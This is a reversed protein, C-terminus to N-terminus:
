QDGRLQRTARRRLSHMNRMPSNLGFAYVMCGVCTKATPEDRTPAMTRWSGCFSVAGDGDKLLWHRRNAPSVFWGIDPKLASM